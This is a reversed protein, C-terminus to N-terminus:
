PRTRPVEAVAARSPEFARCSRVNRPRRGIAPAAVAVVGSASPGGGDPASLTAEGRRRRARLQDLCVRATVTTLWGPLNEVDGRDAAAARMWAQQVADDAEDLTGLMRYAVQRLRPRETEFDSTLGDDPRM